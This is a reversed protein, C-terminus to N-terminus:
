SSMVEIVTALDKMRKRSLVDSLETPPIAYGRRHSELDRVLAAAVEEALVNIRKFGSFAAVPAPETMEWFGLQFRCEHGRGKLAEGTLRVDGRRVDVLIVGQQRPEAHVTLATEGEPDSFPWSLLIM